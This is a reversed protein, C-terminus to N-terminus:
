LTIYFPSSLRLSVEVTGMLFVGSKIVEKNEKYSMQQSMKNLKEVTLCCLVLFINGEMSPKSKELRM